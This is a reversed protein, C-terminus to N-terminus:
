QNDVSQPDISLAQDDLAAPSFADVNDVPKVQRQFPKQFQEVVTTTVSGTAPFSEFNDTRDVQGQVSKFGPRSLDLQAAGSSVYLAMSVLVLCFAILVSGSIFLVIQRRYFPVPGAHIEVQETEEIM